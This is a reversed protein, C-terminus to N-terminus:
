GKLISTANESFLRAREGESTGALYFDTVGLNDIAGDVYLRRSVLRYAPASSVDGDILYRHLETRIKTRQRAHYARQLDGLLAIGMQM